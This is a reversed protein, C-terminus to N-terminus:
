PMVSMLIWATLCSGVIAGSLAVVCYGAIIYGRDPDTDPEAHTDTVDDPIDLPRPPMGFNRMPAESEATM